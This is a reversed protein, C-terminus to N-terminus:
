ISLRELFKHGVSRGLSNLLGLFAIAKLFKLEFPQSIASNHHNTQHNYLRGKSEVFALTQGSSPLLGFIKIGAEYNPFEESNHEFDLGNEVIWKNFLDQTSKKTLDM